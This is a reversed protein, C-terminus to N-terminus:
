LEKNQHMAQWVNLDEVRYLRAGRNHYQVSPLNPHCVRRFKSYSLGLWHAAQQSNLYGPIV